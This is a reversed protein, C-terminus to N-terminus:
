PPGTAAFAWQVSGPTHNSAKRHRTILGQRAALRYLSAPALRRPHILPHGPQDPYAGSRRRSLAKTLTPLRWIIWWFSHKSDPQNGRGGCGCAGPKRVEGSDELLGLRPLIERLCERAYDKGRRPSGVVRLLLQMRGVSIFTAYSGDDLVELADHPGVERLALHHELAVVAWYDRDPLRDTEHRPLLSVRNM